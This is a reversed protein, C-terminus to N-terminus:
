KLTDAVLYWKFTLLAFIIVRLYGAMARVPFLCSAMEMHYDKASCTKSHWCINLFGM